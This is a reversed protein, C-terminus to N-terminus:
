MLKAAVRGFRAALTFRAIEPNNVWLNTNQIFAKGYTDRQQLPKYSKATEETSHKILERYSAIEEKSALGRILAYGKSQYFEIADQALPYDSTLDDLAPM